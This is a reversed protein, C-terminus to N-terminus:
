NPKQPIRTRKFSTKKKNVRSGAACQVWVVASEVVDALLQPCWGLSGVIVDLRGGGILVV